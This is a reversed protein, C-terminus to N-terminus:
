QNIIVLATGPTGEVTPNQIGNEKWTIMFLTPRKNSGYEITITIDTIRNSPSALLFDKWNREMMYGDGHDTACLVAM